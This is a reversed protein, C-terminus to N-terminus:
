IKVVKLTKVVNGVEVTVFYIGAPLNPHDFSINYNDKGNDLKSEIIQNNLMNLYNVKVNEIESLLISVTFQGSSPNPFLRISKVLEDQYGLADNVEKKQQKELVTVTKIVADECGTNAVNMAIQYTGPTNFVIQKVHLNTSAVETINSIPLTWNLIPPTPKTVDIVHVTDGVNVVTSVLFEAKLVFNNVGINFNTSRTIGNSNTASLIYNGAQSLIVNRQNSSFGNNSSWSYSTAAVGADLQLFQNQCLIKDPISALVFSNNALSNPDEADPVIKFLVNYGREISVGPLLTISQSSVITATDVTNKLFVSAPAIPLIIPATSNISQAITESGFLYTLIFLGLTINKM